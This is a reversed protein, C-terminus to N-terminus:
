REHRRRAARRPRGHGGRDPHRHDHRRDLHVPDHRGAPRRRGGRAPRGATRRALARQRRVQRRGRQLRLDPHHRARGPRPRAAADFTSSSRTARGHRAGEAVLQRPRGAARGTRHRGPLLGQQAHHVHQPGQDEARHRAAAAHRRQEAGAPRRRRARRLRRRPPQQGPSRGHRRRGRCRVVWLATVLLQRRRSRRHTADPSGDVPRLLVILAMAGVVAGLLSPFPDLPEAAPRTAAAAAGVLGLVAVGALGIARRRVALAGTVLSLLVLVVLISGILVPKDNTGFQASRSSRSGPRRRTSSAAASRSWRRPRPVSWSRPSSPPPWRRSPPSCVPSRM